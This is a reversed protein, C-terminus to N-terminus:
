CLWHGRGGVCDVVARGNTLEDGRGADHAEDLAAGHAEVLRYRAEHGLEGGVGLLRHRDPLQEGM